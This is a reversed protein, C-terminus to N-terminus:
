LDIFFCLIREVIKQGCCVCGILKTETEVKDIMEEIMEGTGEVMETVMVVEEVEAVEEEAVEEVEVVVKDIMEGTMIGIMGIGVMAVVEITETMGTMEETMGM